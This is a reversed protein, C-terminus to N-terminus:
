GGKPAYRENLMAAITEGLYHTIAITKDSGHTKELRHWVKIDVVFGNSDIVSFLGHDYEVPWAFALRITDDNIPM